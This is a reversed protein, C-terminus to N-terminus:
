GSSAKVVRGEAVKESGAYLLFRTGKPLSIGTTAEVYVMGSGKFGDPDVAAVLLPAPRTPLNSFRATSSIARNNSLLDRASRSFVTILALASTNPCPQRM